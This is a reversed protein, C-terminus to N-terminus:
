AGNGNGDTLVSPLPVKPVIPVNAAKIGRNALYICTPTKSTRSVGVLVVDASRLRDASQGDDHALTYNIAEIRRFYDEGMEHQLGPRARSEAGLFSSFAALIPDLVPLCPVQLHRCGERLRDRLETDVLTFMVMGPNIAMAKLVQDIQGGNRVLAYKHHIPHADPFQAIAANALSNLTEGTADSVLYLHFSKM